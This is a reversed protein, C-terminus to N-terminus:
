KEKYEQKMVSDMDEIIELLTTEAKALDEQQHILFEYRESVREYETPAMENVPGLERIQRKITNVKTRAINADIDLKYLSVAKEYTMSYTENLTNLLTDLKVDARNVEIELEHLLNTKENYLSNEKKINFEFDDLESSLKIRNNNLIELDAEIKNKEPM